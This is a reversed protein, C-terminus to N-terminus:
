EDFQSSAAWQQFEEESLWPLKITFVTGENLKSDVTIIGKHRQIILHVMALGLGIGRDPAKSTFFPEFIKTINEALIGCGTDKFEIVCMNKRCSVNIIIKGGEPMADIANMALNLFVQALTIKDANVLILDSPYNKEVIINHVM